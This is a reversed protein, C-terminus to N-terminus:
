VRPGAAVADAFVAAALSHAEECALQRAVGVHRLYAALMGAARDAAGAHAVGPGPQHGTRDALLDAQLREQALESALLRGATAAGACAPLERGAAALARRAARLPAVLHRELLDARAAIATVDIDKEEVGGAALACLQLLVMVVAGHRDQLAICRSQVAARAYAALAFNWLAEGAGAPAFRDRDM